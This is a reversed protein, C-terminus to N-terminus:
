VLNTPLRKGDWTGTPALRAVPALKGSAAADAVDFVFLGHEFHAVYARSGVVQLDHPADGGLSWTAVLRPADLDTADWVKLAANGYESTSVVLRKGDVHAVRVSHSYSQHPDLHRIEVVTEPAAPDTVDLATVGWWVNAVWLLPTGTEPDVEYWADHSRVPDPRLPLDGLPTLLPRSVRVLTREGPAGEVRFISLDKGEGKSAVVHDADDVRFIALMHAGPADLRYSSEVRPSAPDRVDVVLIREGGAVLLSAGDTTFKVDLAYDGDDAHWTSLVVPARPDTVDLLDFGGAFIRASAVLPRGTPDLDLERHRAPEPDDLPDQWLVRLNASTGDGVEAECPLDAVEAALADYPAATAAVPEDTPTPTACGAAIVALVVLAARM